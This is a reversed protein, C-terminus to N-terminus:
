SRVEGSLAGPRANEIYSLERLCFESEHQSCSLTSKLNYTCVIEGIFLPPPSRRFPCCLGRLRSSLFLERTLPHPELVHVTLPVMHGSAVRLLQMGPLFSLLPYVSKLVLDFSAAATPPPVHSHSVRPCMSFFGEASLAGAQPHFIANRNKESLM